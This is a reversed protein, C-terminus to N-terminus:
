GSRGHRDRDFHLVQQGCLPSSEKACKAVRTTCVLIPQVAFNTANAVLWDNRTPARLLRVGSGSGCAAEGQAAYTQASPDPDIAFPLRPPTSPYHHRKHPAHPSVHPRPKTPGSTRSTLSACTRTQLYHSPIQRPISRKNPACM